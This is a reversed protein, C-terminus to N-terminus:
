GRLLERRKWEYEEASVLGQDRLRALDEIKSALSQAAPAAAAARSSGSRVTAMILASVLAILIGLGILIWTTTVASALDAVCGGAFDSRYGYEPAFADMYEAMDSDKFPASCYSGAPQFGYIIGIIILVAGASIGWWWGNGAKKAPKPHGAFSAAALPPPPSDALVMITRRIEPDLTHVETEKGWAEGDFYAAAQLRHAQSYWGPKM